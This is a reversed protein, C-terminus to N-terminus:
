YAIDCSFRYTRPPMPYGAMVEYSAGLFNEVHLQVHLRLPGSVIHVGLGAAAVHYAPLFDRADETIYRHGVFAYRGSIDVGQIGAVGPDVNWVGQIGATEEPAYIVPVHTNPDGPYDESMKLTKQRAYNVDLRIGEAILVYHVEVGRADVVRLNRPTVSGGSAPVWVIRDKMASVFGTVDMHHEGWWRGSWGFGAEYGTSREPRLDPNGIGGGGAYFLENFTPARFNRSVMGRVRVSADRFLFPMKLPQQLFIGLQPSWEDPLASVRDYRLAPFVLVHFADMSGAVLQEAALAVGWSERSIEARYANGEGRVLVGDVGFYVKSGPAPEMGAHSEIHLERSATYNDVPVYGIALDPDRYRQYEFQGQVRTEWTLWSLPLASVSSQVVLSRDTERARSVSYPGAIVGPVGREGTLYAAFGSVRITKDLATAVTASLRDAKM